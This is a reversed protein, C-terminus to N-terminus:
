GEARRQKPKKSLGHMTLHAKPETKPNELPKKTMHLSSITFNSRLNRECRIRININEM